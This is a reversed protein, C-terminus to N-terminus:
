IEFVENAESNEEEESDWFWDEFFKTVAEPEEKVPNNLSNLRPLLVQNLQAQLYIKNLLKKTNADYVFLFRHLGVTGIIPETPHSFISRIAGPAGKYKHM